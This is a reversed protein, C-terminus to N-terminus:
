KEKEEKKYRKECRATVTIGSIELNYMLEDVIAVCNPSKLEQLMPPLHPEMHTFIIMWVEIMVAGMIQDTGM